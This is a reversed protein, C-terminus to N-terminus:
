QTVETLARRHLIQGSENTQVVAPGEATAEYRTWYPDDGLAEAPVMRVESELLEGRSVADSLTRSTAADGPALLLFRTGARLALARERQIAARQSSFECSVCPVNFLVVAASAFSERSATGSIARVALTPAPAGQRFRTGLTAPRPRLQITEGNFKEKLQRLDDDPVASLRWFQVVGNRDVAATAGHTHGLPWHLARRLTQYSEAGLKQQLTTDLSVMQVLSGAARNALLGAYQHSSNDASAVILAYRWPGPLSSQLVAVADAALTDGYEIPDENIMTDRAQVHKLVAAGAALNAAVLVLAVVTRRVPKITMDADESPVPIGAQLRSANCRTCPTYRKAGEVEDHRATRSLRRPHRSKSGLQIQLAEAPDFSILIVPLGRAAWSDSLQTQVAPERALDRSVGLRLSLLQGAQRHSIPDTSELDHVRLAM